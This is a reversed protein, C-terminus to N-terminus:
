RNSKHFSLCVVGFNNITLKIYTKIGNVYTIFEYMDDNNDRKYDHDKSINFCEQAKLNTLYYAADKVNVIGLDVLAQKWDVTKGDYSVKRSIIKWLGSNVFRKVSKLFLDAADQKKM